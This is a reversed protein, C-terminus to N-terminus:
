LFYKWPGRLGKAFPGEEFDLSDLHQQRYYRSLDQTTKIEVQCGLIEGLEQQMGVLRM